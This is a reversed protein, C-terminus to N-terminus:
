GFPPLGQPSAQLDPRPYPPGASRLGGATCDVCRTRPLDMLTPSGEDSLGSGPHCILAQGSRARQDPGHPSSSAVTGILAPIEEPLHVPRPVAPAPSAV